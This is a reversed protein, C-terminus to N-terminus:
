DEGVAKQGSQFDKSKRSGVLSAEERQTRLAPRHYENLQHVTSDHFMHFGARRQQNRESHM